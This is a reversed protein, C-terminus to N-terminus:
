TDIQSMCHFETIVFETIVFETIVFETIVFETIVFKQSYCVYKRLKKLGM